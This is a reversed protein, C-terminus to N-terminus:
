NKNLSTLYNMIDTLAQYFGDAESQFVTLYTRVKEEGKQSASTIKIFPKSDKTNKVDFFFTRRGNNYKTSFLPPTFEPM